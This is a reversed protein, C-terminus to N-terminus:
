SPAGRKRWRTCDSAGECSGRRGCARPPQRSDRRVAPELRPREPGTMAGHSAVRESEGDAEDLAARVQGDDLKTAGGSRSSASFALPVAFPSTHKRARQVTDFALKASSSMVGLANGGAEHAGFIGVFQANSSPPPGGDKSFEIVAPEENTRFSMSWKGDHWGPEGRFYILFTLPAGTDSLPEDIVSWMSSVAATLPYGGYGNMTKPAKPDATGQPGQSAPAILMLM